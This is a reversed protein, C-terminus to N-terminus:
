GYLQYALDKMDPNQQQILRLKKARSWRKLQKERRLAGVVQRYEEFYLLKVVNYRRTFASGEGQQHARLRQRLDSTVGIYLVTDHRNSLIYVYYTKM